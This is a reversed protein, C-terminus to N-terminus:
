RGLLYKLWTRLGAGPGPALRLAEFASRIAHLEDTGLRLRGAAANERAQVRDRAGALVCTVGPQAITWALVVQAITAGHRAAVPAVVEDLVRNVRARNTAQFSRRRGRGEGPAFVREARVKGTLLGQDLAAYVLTGTEGREGQPLLEREADRALLSYQLQHGALPTSGLIARAEDIGRADFNSVGIEAIMGIRRLEVMEGLTDALPTHPDRAHIQALDLREVGLRRLSGEVCARIAAPRGDRVIAIERGDPARQSKTGALRPDRADLRADWALGVKGLVKAKGPRARLAAGVLEESRGFGYVPATDIADMGEDIAVQLALVAEAEDQAGWYGGGLAYAGFCAVPLELSSGGLRRRQM